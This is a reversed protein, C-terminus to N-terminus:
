DCNASSVKVTLRLDARHAPWDGLLVDEFDLPMRLGEHSVTRGLGLTIDAEFKAALSDIAAQATEESAAGDDDTDILHRYFRIGFDYTVSVLRGPIGRMLPERRFRRISYANILKLEDSMYLRQYEDIRGDKPYRRRRHVQAASDHERILLM